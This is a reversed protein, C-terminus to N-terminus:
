VCCVLIDHLALNLFRNLHIDFQKISQIDTLLTFSIQLIYRLIDPFNGSFNDFSRNKFLIKRDM